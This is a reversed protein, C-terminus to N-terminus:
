TYFGTINGAANTNIDPFWGQTNTFLESLGLLSLQCTGGDTWGINVEFQSVSVVLDADTYRTNDAKLVDGQIFLCSNHLHLFQDQNEITITYKGACNLQTGTVPQYKDYDYSIISDDPDNTEHLEQISERIM